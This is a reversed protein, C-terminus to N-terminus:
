RAPRRRRVARPRAAAAARGTGGDRVRGAVYPVLALLAGAALVLLENVGLLYAALAAVAVVALWWSRAATRLLPVVAWAIIALVVPVVGAFM